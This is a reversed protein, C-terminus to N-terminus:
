RAAPPSTPPSPIKPVSSSTTSVPVETISLARPSELMSFTIMPPCTSTFSSKWPMTACRTAATVTPPTGITSVAPGAFSRLIWQPAATDNDALLM